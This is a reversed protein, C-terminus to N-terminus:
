LIREEVVGEMDMTVLRLSNGVARVIEEKRRDGIGQCTATQHQATWREPALRAVNLAHFGFGLLCVHEATSLANRAADFVADEQATEHVIRIGMAARLSDVTVDPTFRRGEGEEDDHLLKGLCGHVHFIPITDLIARATRGDVGYLNTIVRYLYYELSRDYNFTVFTANSRTLEDLKAGRLRRWLTDYWAGRRDDFLVHDAECPVLARAICAKGVELFGTNLELFADVSGAQSWRLAAQFTSLTTTNFMERLQTAWPGDPDALNEVIQRELDAGSPFGYPISAGAGLVFVTRQSFMVVPYRCHRERGASAAQLVRQAHRDRTPGVGVGIQGWVGPLLGQAADHRASGARV